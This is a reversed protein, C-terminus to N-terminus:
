KRALEEAKVIGLLPRATARKPDLRMKRRLIRKFQHYEADKSLDIYGDRNALLKKLIELEM